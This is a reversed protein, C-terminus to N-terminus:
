SDVVQSTGQAPGSSMRKVSAIFLTSTLFIKKTLMVRSVKYNLTSPVPSAATPSLEM